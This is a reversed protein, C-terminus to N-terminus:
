RQVITISTTGGGNVKQYVDVGDQIFRVMADQEVPVSVVAVHKLNRTLSVKSEDESMFYRINTLDPSYNPLLQNLGALTEFSSLIQQTQLDLMNVLLNGDLYNIDIAKVSDLENIDLENYKLFDKNLFNIDLATKAEKSQMDVDQTKMPPSVILYNNINPQDINLIQPAAPPSTLSSVYTAQYAVDMVVTGAENSVSIAGTVCGSEDCSPLLMVLSRGLEDVTMSFDTGRVAIKATPTQVNVSQPNSKAIQGSAYRATGLAVKMALKGTGKSPDYVFDDIILKSQETIKVNTNDEFTLQAKAAATIVTDNLELNSNLRSPTSKKNRVIETPGSQETVKGITAANTLSPSALLITTVLVQFFLM